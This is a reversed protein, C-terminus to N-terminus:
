KGSIITIDRLILWLGPQKEKPLIMELSDLKGEVTVIQQQLNILKGRDQPETHWEGDENTIVLETHPGSGVLRVRGTVRVIELAQTEAGAREPPPAPGNRDRFYRSEAEEKPARKEERGGFGALPAASLVCVTMVAFFRFMRENKLM